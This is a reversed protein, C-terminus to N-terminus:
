SISKSCGNADASLRVRFWMVFLLPIEICSPCFRMRKWQFFQLDPLSMCSCACLCKRYARILAPDPGTFLKVASGKGLYTIVSISPDLVEWKCAGDGLLHYLLAPSSSFHVRTNHMYRHTTCTSPLPTHSHVGAVVISSKETGDFWEIDAVVKDDSTSLSLVAGPWKEKGDVIRQIITGTKLDSAFM